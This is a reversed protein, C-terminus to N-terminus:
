AVLAPASQTANENEGKYAFGKMCKCPSYRKCKCNSCEHKPAKGTVARMSKLGKSGSNM